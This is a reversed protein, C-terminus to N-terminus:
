ADKLGMQNNNLTDEMSDAYPVANWGIANLDDQVEEDINGEGGSCYWDMYDGEGLIDAILGGTARWSYGTLYDGHMLENNCLTGYFRVCYDRSDRMKFKISNSDQIDRLLNPRNLNIHDKDDQIFDTQKDLEAMWDLRAKELRGARDRLYVKSNVSSFFSAMESFQDETLFMELKNFSMKGSNDTKSIMVHIYDPHADFVNVYTTVDGHDIELHEHIESELKDIQSDV